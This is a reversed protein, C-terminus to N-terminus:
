RARTATGGDCQTQWLFNEQLSYTLLHPLHTTLRSLRPNCVGNIVRRSTRRRIRGRIARRSGNAASAVAVQDRSRPRRGSRDSAAMGSARLVCSSRGARRDAAPAREDDPAQMLSEIFQTASSERGDVGDNQEPLPLDHEELLEAIRERRRSAQEKAIM